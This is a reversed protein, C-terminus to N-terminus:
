ASVEAVVEAAAAGHQREIGEVWDAIQERTWREHDNLCLIATFVTPSQNMHRGGELHQPNPWHWGAPRTLVIPWLEAVESLSALSRGTAAFTASAIACRFDGLSYCGFGQPGLMSGLRIAESLKV